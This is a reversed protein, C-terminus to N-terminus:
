CDDEVVKIRFWDIFVDGFSTTNHDLIVSWREIVFPELWRKLWDGAQHQNNLMGKFALCTFQNIPDAGFIFEPGLISWTCTNPIFTRPPCAFSPNTLYRRIWKSDNWKMMDETKHNLINIIDIKTNKGTWKLRGSPILFFLTQYTHKCVIFKTM